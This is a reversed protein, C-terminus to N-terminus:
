GFINIEGGEKETHPHTHTEREGRRETDVSGIETKM